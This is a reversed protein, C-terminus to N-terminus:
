DTARFRRETAKKRESTKRTHHLPQEDRTESEWAGIASIFMCAMMRRLRTAVPLAVGKLISWLLARRISLRLTYKPDCVPVPEDQIGRSGTIM